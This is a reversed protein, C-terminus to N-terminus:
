INVQLDTKEIEAEVPEVEVLELDVPVWYIEEEELKTKVMM